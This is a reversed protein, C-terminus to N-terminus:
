EPAATPIKMETSVITLGPERFLDVDQPPVLAGASDMVVRVVPYKITEPGPRVQKVIGGRGDSLRVATGPPYPAISSRFVDVVEPDFDGACRDVVLEYGEHTPMGRRYCRDSTVVDFVDAAAAIRAFQHIAEGSQGDPYGGGTWWEHHSRVVARSLPSIGEARLLM